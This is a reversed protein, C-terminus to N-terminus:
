IYDWKVECLQFLLKEDNDQVNTLAIASQLQTIIELESKDEQQALREINAKLEQNTM